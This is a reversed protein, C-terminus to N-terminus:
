GGLEEPPQEFRWEITLDKEISYAGAGVPALADDVYYQWYYGKEFNQELGNISEIFVGFQKHESTKLDAIMETAELATTGCPVVVNESTDFGGGPNIKVTVAFNGECSGSEFDAIMYVASLVLVLAVAGVVLNKNM